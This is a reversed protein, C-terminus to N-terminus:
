EVEERRDSKLGHSTKNDSNILNNSFDMVNFRPGLLKNFVTDKNELTKM